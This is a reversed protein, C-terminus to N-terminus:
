GNPKELTPDSLALYARCVEMVDDYASLWPYPKWNLLARAKDAVPESMTSRWTSDAPGCLHPGQGDFACGASGYERCRAATQPEALRLRRCTECKKAEHDYVFESNRIHDELTM